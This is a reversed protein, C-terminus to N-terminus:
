NIQDIRCRILLRAVERVVEEPGSIQLSCKPQGVEEIHYLTTGTMEDDGASDPDSASVVITERVGQKGHPGCGLTYTGPSLDLEVRIGRDGRHQGVDVFDGEAGRLWWYGQWGSCRRHFTANSLTSENEVTVKMTEGKRTRTQIQKPQSM